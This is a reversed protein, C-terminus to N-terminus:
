WRKPAKCELRQDFYAKKPINTYYRQGANPHLSLFRNKALKAILISKKFPVNTLFSRFDHFFSPFHRVVLPWENDIDNDNDVLESVATRSM